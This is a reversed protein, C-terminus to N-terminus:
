GAPGPLFCKVFIETSSPSPKSFWVVAYGLRNPERIVAEDPVDIWQGDIKVRYKGDGMDWTAEPPYGDSIECCGYWGSLPTKLGKIWAKIEPDVDRYRGDDRANAPMVMLLAAALLSCEWSLIPHKRM